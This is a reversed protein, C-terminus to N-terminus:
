TIGLTIKTNGSKSFCQYFTTNQVALSLYLISSNVQIAILLLINLVEVLKM